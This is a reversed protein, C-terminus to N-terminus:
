VMHVLFSPARSKLSGSKGGCEQLFTLHSPTAPRTTGKLEVMLQHSDAM